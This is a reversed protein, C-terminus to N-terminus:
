EKQFNESHKGLLSETRPENYQQTLVRYGQRDIRLTTRSKGAAQSQQKRWRQHGAPSYKSTCRGNVIVEREVELCPLIGVDVKPTQQYAVDVRQTHALIVQGHQHSTM